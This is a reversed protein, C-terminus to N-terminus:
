EVEGIICYDQCDFLLRNLKEFNENLTKVAYAWRPTMYEEVPVPKFSAEPPFPSIKRVENVKIGSLEMLFRTTEPHLPWVHTPDRFYHQTLAVISESNITEFVIKGGKVVKERALKMLKSLQDRTLHEIV